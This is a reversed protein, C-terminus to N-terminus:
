KVTSSSVLDGPDADAYQVVLPLCLLYIVTLALLIYNRPRGALWQAKFQM